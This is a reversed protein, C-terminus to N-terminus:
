GKHPRAQRSPPGNFSAVCVGGQCIHGPPCEFNFQCTLASVAAVAPPVALSTVVPLAAAAVLGIRRALVRRSIKVAPLAVPTQLLHSRDLQQLALWVVQDDVPAQLEQALLEALQRVSTQGDCHQWILSTVRNLSHAQDRETDYVVLEANLPSFLLGASRAHPMQQDKNTEMEM